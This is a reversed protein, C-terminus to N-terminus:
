QQGQGRALYRQVAPYYLEVFNHQFYVDLKKVGGVLSRFRAWLSWVIDAVRHLCGESPEWKTNADDRNLHLWEGRVHTFGGLGWDLPVRAVIDGEYVVRWYGAVNPVRDVELLAETFKQDGSRPCGFALASVTVRDTIPDHYRKAIDRLAVTLTGSGLSHGALLIRVTGDEAAAAPILADVAAFVKDRLAVWHLAFGAHTAGPAYNVPFYVALADMIWEDHNHTGRFGILIDCATGDRGGVLATADTVEEVIVQDQPKPTLFPATRGLDELFRCCDAAEALM